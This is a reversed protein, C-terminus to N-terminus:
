LKVGESVPTSVSFVSKEAVSTSSRCILRVRKESNKGSFRSKKRWSTSMKEKPPRSRLPM